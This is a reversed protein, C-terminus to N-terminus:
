EGFKQQGIWQRAGGLGAQAMESAPKRLMYILLAVLILFSVIGGLIAAITADKHAENLDDNKKDPDLKDQGSSIDSATKATFGMAIFGVVVALVMVVLMGVNHKAM